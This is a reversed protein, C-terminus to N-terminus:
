RRCTKTRRPEPLFGGCVMITSVGLAAAYDLERRYQETNPPWPNATVSSSFAAITLGHEAVRRKLQQPDGLTQEDGGLEVGEYGAAKIEHLATDLDFPQGNAQSWGTWTMLHHALRM